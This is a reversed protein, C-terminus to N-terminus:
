SSASRSIKKEHTLLLAIVNRLLPVLESSLTHDCATACRRNQGKSILSCPIGSVAKVNEAENLFLASLCEKM